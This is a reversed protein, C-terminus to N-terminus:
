IPIVLVSLDIGIIDQLGVPGHKAVAHIIEQLTTCNERINEHTNEHCNEVVNKM